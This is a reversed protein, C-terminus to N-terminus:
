PSDNRRWDTKLQAFYAFSLIIVGIFPLWGSRVLYNTRDIIGVLYSGSLFLFGIAASLYVPKKAKRRQNTIAYSICAISASFTILVTVILRVEIYDIQPILVTM